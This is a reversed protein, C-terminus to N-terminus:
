ALELEVHASHIDDFAENVSVAAAASERQSPTAIQLLGARDLNQPLAFAKQHLIVLELIRALGESQYGNHFHVDTDLVDSAAMQYGCALLWRGKTICSWVQLHDLAGSPSFGYEVHILGRQSGRMLDSWSAVVASELLQDFNHAQSM